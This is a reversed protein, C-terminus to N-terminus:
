TSNIDNIKFMEEKRTYMNVAVFEGKYGVFKLINYNIAM